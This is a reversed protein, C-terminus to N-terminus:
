RFEIINEITRSFHHLVSTVGHSMRVFDSRGRGRLGFAREDFVHLAALARAFGADGGGEGVRHCPAVRVARRRREPDLDGRVADNLAALGLGGRLQPEFSRPM